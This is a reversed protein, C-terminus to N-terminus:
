KVQAYQELARDLAGWLGDQWAQVQSWEEAPLTRKVFQLWAGVILDAYM